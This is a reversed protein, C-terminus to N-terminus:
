LPIKGTNCSKKVRRSPAVVYKPIIKSKTWLKTYLAVKCISAFYSLITFAAPSVVPKM